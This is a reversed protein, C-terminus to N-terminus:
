KPEPITNQKSGMPSETGQSLENTTELKTDSALESFMTMTKESPAKHIVEAAQYKTGADTSADELPKDLVSEGSKFERLEGENNRWLEEPHNRSVVVINAAPVCWRESIMARLQQDTTPYSLTADIIYIEAAGLSPFDINNEMIPLSKPASIDVLGYAELVSELRDMKETPDYNAIKIRFEFTKESEALHELFTKM